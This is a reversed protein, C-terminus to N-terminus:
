RGADHENELAPTVVMFITTAIPAWRKLTDIMKLFGESDSSCRQLSIEFSTVSWNERGADNETEPKVALLNNSNM